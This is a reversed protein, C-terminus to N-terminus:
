MYTMMGRSCKCVYYKDYEQLITPVTLTYCFGNEKKNRFCGSCRYIHECPDPYLKGDDFLVNIDCFPCKLEKLNQYKSERNGNEAITDYYPLGRLPVNPGTYVSPRAYGRRASTFLKFTIPCYVWRVRKFNGMLPRRRIPRSLEEIDEDEQKEEKEDDSLQLLPGPNFDIQVPNLLKNLEVNREFFDISTQLENVISVLLAVQEELKAVRQEMENGEEELQIVRQHMVDREQELQVIRQELEEVQSICHEVEM